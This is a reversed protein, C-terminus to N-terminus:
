ANFVVHVLENMLQFSVLDRISSASCNPSIKGIKQLERLIM